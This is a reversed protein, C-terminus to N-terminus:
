FRIDNKLDRDHIGRGDKSSGNGVEKSVLIAREITFMGKIGM